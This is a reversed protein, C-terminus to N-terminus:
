DNLESIIRKNVYKKDLIMRSYGFDCLSVDNFEDLLINELELGKYLINM